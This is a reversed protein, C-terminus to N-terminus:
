KRILTHDLNVLVEMLGDERFIELALNVLGEKTTFASEDAVVAIRGSQGPVLEPREMRLAFPRATPSTLDATLRADRFRWPADYMNTLHIMAAAKGPGSFLEITVDMGGDKLVAVRERRFPTKEVQGNVLLTAFAHDVSNEEKKLRENEESLKFERKRSDNLSSLVANYSERDKFVNVQHDTWGWKERRPPRVLFSFETGDELTVLLPVWEDEGLDRLPELVVKKSGVLPREFRGEWGLLRTRAPDPEQEFRLTTSVQGSVYVNNATRAPHESLLLTRIETRAGPELAQAVSALLVLLPMCRIPSPTRM